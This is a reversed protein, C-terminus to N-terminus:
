IRREIKVKKLILRPCHQQVKEATRQVGKLQEGSWHFALVPICAWQQILPYRKCATRKSCRLVKTFWGCANAPLRTPNLKQHKNSWHFILVLVLFLWLSYLLLTQGVLLTQLCDKGDPEERPRLRAGRGTCWKIRTDRIAVVGDPVSKEHESSWHLVGSSEHFDNALLAAPDLINSRRFDQVM